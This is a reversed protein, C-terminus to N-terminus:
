RSKLMKLCPFGGSFLIQMSCNVLLLVVAYATDFHGADVLGLVMPISWASEEFNVEVEEMGDKDTSARSAASSPANSASLLISPM